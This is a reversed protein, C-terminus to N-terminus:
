RKGKPIGMLKQYPVIVSNNSVNERVITGAGIACNEGISVGDLVLAGMGIWSGNGIQIAGRTYLGQDAIPIDATDTHYM